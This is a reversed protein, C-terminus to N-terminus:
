WVFDEDVTVLKAIEEDFVKIPRWGLNRLKSDDISYRLDMGERSYTLDCYDFVNEYDLSMHKLVTEVVIRNPLETDGSINFIQNILGSEIITIIGRATDESHLWMRKPSGENHLPIKRGLRLLKITKPILKEPYQRPGYNNTPRVIVYPIKYTRSWALVLQDAAAKSASYPNSPKLLDSESHSGELIDGYVEDTSFHLLIPRDYRKSRILELLNYVGTINSDLFVKSRSISNDVHTEAATNIVYDCDPLYSLQAIDIELHTYNPDQTLEELTLLSAAYTHKDIGMVHWGKALCQKTVQSGIFGLSGTVIVVKKSTM